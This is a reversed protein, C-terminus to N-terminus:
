NLIVIRTSDLQAFLAPKSIDLILMQRVPVLDARIVGIQPQGTFALPVIQELTQDVPFARQSFVLRDSRMYIVHRPLLRSLKSNVGHYQAGFDFPVISLGFIRPSALHDPNGATSEAHAGIM